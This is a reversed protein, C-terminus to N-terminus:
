GHIPMLYVPAFFAVSLKKAANLCNVGTVDVKLQSMTEHIPTFASHAMTVCLRDIALCHWRMITPCGATVELM